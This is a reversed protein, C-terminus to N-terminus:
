KGGYRVYIPAAKRFTSIDAYGIGSKVSRASYFKNDGTIVGMHGTVGGSGAPWLVMDNVTGKDVVTFGKGSRVTETSFRPGKYGMDQCARWMLGSCDYYDPGTAAWRYGKAVQGRRIAAAALGGNPNTPVPSDHGVITAQNAINSDGTRTLIESLADTDGSTVATFTDALDKGLYTVRGKFVQRILLIAILIFLYGLTNM